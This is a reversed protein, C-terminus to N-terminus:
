KSLKTVKLWYLFAVFVAFSLSIYCLPTGMESRPCIGGQSFELASGIVALLIVPTWGVVFLWKSYKKRDFLAAMLMLLYGISVLYCAPINIVSPCPAIGTVTLYSVSIGGYLGASLSVLLIATIVAAILKKLGKNENDQM